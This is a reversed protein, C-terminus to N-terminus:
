PAPEAGPAGPVRGKLTKRQVSWQERSLEGSEYRLDLRALEAVLADRATPGTGVAPTQRAWRRRRVVVFGTLVTLALAIPVLAAMWNPAVSARAIALLQIPDGADVTEEGSWRRYRTNGITVRGDDELRNSLVELPPTAHVGVDLIPYLATRSLEFSGGGAGPVRYGFTIQTDGPPIAVTAGFGFDTPVIEPIDIDAAIIRQDTADSPIAFGLTPIPRKDRGGADAGRGIYAHESRNVVRVTEVVGLDGEDVTLFLLDRRILIATPDTTTDWVHLKSDIVPQRRPLDPISIAGGAFTGGDWHADLAYFRDDGTALDAFEYRGRADTTANRTLRVTGDDRGGVLVVRVGEQPRGTSENIVTGRIVGDRAGAAAAPLACLAAPALVAALLRM